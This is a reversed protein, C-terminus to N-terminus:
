VLWILEIIFHQCKFGTLYKGDKPTNLHRFSVLWEAVHSIKGGATLSSMGRYNLQIM